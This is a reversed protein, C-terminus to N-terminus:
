RSRTQQNLKKWTIRCRRCCWDGIYKDFGVFFKKTVENTSLSARDVTRGISLEILSCFLGRDPAKERKRRERERERSYSRNDRSVLEYRTDARDSGVASDPAVLSLTSWYISANGIGGRRLFHEVNLVDASM